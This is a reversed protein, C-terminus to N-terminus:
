NKIFDKLQKLENNRVDVVSLHGYLKIMEKDDKFSFSNDQQRNQRFNCSVYADDPNVKEIRNLV